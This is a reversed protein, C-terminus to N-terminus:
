GAARVTLDVTSIRILWEDQKFGHKLSLYFPQASFSIGSMGDMVRRTASRASQNAEAFWDFRYRNEDM